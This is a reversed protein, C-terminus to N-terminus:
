ILSYFKQANKYDSIIINYKPHKTIVRRDGIKGFRSPINQKEIKSIIGFRLLLSQLLEAKEKKATAIGITKLLDNNRTQIWGDGDVFGKLWSLILTDHLKTLNNMIM